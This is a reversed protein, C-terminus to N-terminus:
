RRFPTDFDYGIQAQVNPPGAKMDADDLVYPLVQVILQPGGLTHNGLRALLVGGVVLSSDTSQVAWHHRVTASIWLKRDIGDGKWIMGMVAGQQEIIVDDWAIVLDWYPEYVWPADIGDVVNTHRAEIAWADFAVVPGVQVKLTPEAALTFATDAFSEDSRADRAADPKGSDIQDFPLPGFPTHFYRVVSASLDLDFFAVPALSLRPGGTVYAPTIAARLGAGAYNDALLFSETEYLPTRASARLDLQAGSPWAGGGLAAHTWLWARDPTEAQALSFALLLM